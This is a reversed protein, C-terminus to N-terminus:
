LEGLATCRATFPMGARKLTKGKLSSPFIVWVAVWLDLNDPRQQHQVKASSLINKEVIHKKGPMIIIIISKSNPRQAWFQLCRLWSMIGAQTPMDDPLSCQGTTFNDLRVIWILCHRRSNWLSALPKIHSSGVMQWILFVQLPETVLAVAASIIVSGYMM